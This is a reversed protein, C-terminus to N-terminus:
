ELVRRIGARRQAATLKDASREAGDLIREILEALATAAVRPVTELAREAHDWRGEAMAKAFGASADTVEADFARAAVMEVLRQAPAPLVSAGNPDGAEHRYARTYNEPTPEIREFALRKLASKALLAPSAAAKDAAKGNADM